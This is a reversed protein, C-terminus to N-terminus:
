LGARAPPEAPRFAAAIDGPHALRTDDQTMFAGRAAKNGPKSPNFVPDVRRDILSCIALCKGVRSARWAARRSRGWGSAPPAPRQPRACRAVSWVAPRGPGAPPDPSRTHGAPAARVPRMIPRVAPSRRRPCDRPSPAPRTPREPPPSRVSPASSGPLAPRRDVLQGPGEARPHIDCASVSSRGVASKVWAGAIVSARPAPPARCRSPRPRDRRRDAPRRALHADAVGGRGCREGM